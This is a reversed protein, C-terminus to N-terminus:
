QPQNTAPTSDVRVNKFVEEHSVDRLQFGMSFPDDMSGHCLSKFQCARGFSPTCQEFHQPFYGDLYRQMVEPATSEADIIKMAARIETERIASQAFFADIMQSKALIPPTQPFQDALVQDSMGQVWDRVGGSLEWTPYRKFGPKYEYSIQDETFPPNGARKYAYCFPSSQKGYSEYGKYLGQVIVGAVERQLHTEIGRITAHVQIATNWSNVWQERKSSTSKYEIYWAQGEPDELVLDPKSMFAFPGSPDSKGMENHRFLTEQEIALIKPYQAILNPWARRYFGRLLGEVLSAQEWAYTGHASDGPTGTELISDLVQKQITSAIYDIDVAGAQHATAIAALGDHLATGLFLEIGSEPRTLGQGRYEYQWVRSRPCRWDAGRRPRSYFILPQPSSM